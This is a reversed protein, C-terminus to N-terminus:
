RNRYSHYRLQRSGIAVAMGPRLALSGGPPLRWWSSTGPRCVYTGNTSGADVLRVEWGQLVVRAHVRSVLPDTLQVPAAQGSAVAAATNPARGLVYDRVLPLMTGDDLIVVGLQPRSGRVPVRTMQAMGIGCIACYTAQPDNFHSNKCYVGLVQQRPAFPEPVELAGVPLAAATV